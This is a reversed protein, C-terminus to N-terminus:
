LGLINRNRHLSLCINEFPAVFECCFAIKLPKLEERRNFITFIAAFQSKNNIQKGTAIV